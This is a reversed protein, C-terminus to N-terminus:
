EKWGHKGVLKVFRCGGLSTRKIGDATRRVVVLDQTFTDGVPIVLRGGVALQEVLTQPVDPAGATVIIGDFPAQEKWGYTGDKIWISVNYLKLRELTKEADRALDGVREISFVQGALLALIATQYGCGTGLELVKEGGRLKLAETMLAVIYPQSITQEHGIPLPNDDYARLRLAEPVFLERPLAEMAEIVRPDSVGRAAIHERVMRSRERGRLDPEFETLRQKFSKSPRSM